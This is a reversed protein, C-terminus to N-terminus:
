FKVTAFVDRLYIQPTSYLYVDRFIGSLRWMDQDELYSGDSWQMVQVAVLNVGPVVMATINFESPLHSAQSYGAMQGNIWVYFASDVGEFNLFVQREQWQPPLTFERRYLGIPNLQPVHPPDVPFPYALNTYQPRGFGLMQWNDPVPIKDWHDPIFRVQEFHAPLEKISAAYFFQWNGNLLKFYKSSGREGALATEETPYPILFAHAPERRRSLVQPNEWDSLEGDEM